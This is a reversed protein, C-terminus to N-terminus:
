KEIQSIILFYGTIMGRDNQYLKLSVNCDKLNKKCFPSVYLFLDSINYSKEINVPKLLLLIIEEFPVIELISRGSFHALTEDLYNLLPRDMWVINFQPDLFIIFVSINTQEGRIVQFSYSKIEENREIVTDTM